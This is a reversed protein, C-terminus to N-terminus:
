KYIAGAARLMDLATPNDYKISNMIFTNGRRDQTNLDIQYELFEQLREHEHKKISSHVVELYDDKFWCQPRDKPDYKISGYKFCHGQSYNEGMNLENIDSNCLAGSFYTDLRCQTGPHQDYTEEVIKKDRRFFTPMRTERKIARHMKSVSMGAMAAKECLRLSLDTKHSKACGRTVFDPARMQIERDEHVMWAKKLCKNTAFFDSQGETSAWHSDNKKRPLGGIHHGIEHCVVLQLADETMM